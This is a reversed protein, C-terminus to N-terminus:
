GSCGDRHRGRGATRAAAPAHPAHLDHSGLSPLITTLSPDDNRRRSCNSRVQLDRLRPEHSKRVSRPRDDIKSLQGVVAEVQIAWPSPVFRPDEGAREAQRSGGSWPQPGLQQFDCPGAVRFGPFAVPVTLSVRDIEGHHGLGSIGDDTAPPDNNM